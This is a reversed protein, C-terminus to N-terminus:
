VIPEKMEGSQAQMDMNQAAFEHRLPDQPSRKRKDGTVRRRVWILGMSLCFIVLIAALIGFCYGAVIGSKKGHETNLFSYTWWGQDYYTIYAVCLYFLL